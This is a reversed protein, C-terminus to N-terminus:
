DATLFLCHPLCHQSAMEDNKAYRPRATTSRRERQERIEAVAILPLEAKQL